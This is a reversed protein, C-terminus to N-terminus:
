RSQKVFDYRFEVLMFQGPGLNVTMEALDVLEIIYEGTALAGFETAYEGWEPKDGTLQPQSQWPGSRIIVPHDKLGAARVAITGVVGDQTQVIRGQWAFAPTPTFTPRRTVTATPNPRVVTVAPQTATAAATATPTRRPQAGQGVVPPQQALALTAYTASPSFQVEATSRGDVFLRLGAGTHLAEVLYVGPSLQGFECVLGGLIPNAVVECYRETGRASRLAAMQGTRGAIRVRIIGESQLSAQIANDNQSLRGEWGTMGPPLVELDFAVAVRENELVTVPLSRGLGEPSVFYQGPKLNEFLCGDPEAGAQGTTCRREGGITDFAQLQVPLGEIGAVKVVITATTSDMPTRGAIVGLWRTVPTPSPLPTETPIPTITATPLPTETPVPTATPISTATPPAPTATMTPLLPVPTNTPTPPLAQSQFEVRTETNPKLEVDFRANLGLPEIIYKGPSLGAFEVTDPGLEDPKQGTDATNIVQSLTSLRVAQNSRGVVQILLRAFPSGSWQVQSVLRGNWVQGGIPTATPTPLVIQTAEPIPIQVFEIVALNYNDAVVQTSVGLTPVSVNWDGATVPAFEATYPGYEPKTGSEATIFVNGSRLEIKTGVMGEVKVRFISGEGTTYGLTNSVLRGVWVKPAPTSTFTPRPISTATPQPTSTPLTDRTSQAASVPIGPEFSFLVLFGMILVAFVFGAFKTM